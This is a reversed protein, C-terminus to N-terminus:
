KGREHVIARFRLLESLRFGTYRGLVLMLAIVILVLEPLAFLGNVLLRVRFVVCIVVVSALTGSVHKLMNVFGDEIELLWCREISMTLIVVPLLGVITGLESEVQDTLVVLGIMGVIVVTLMVSLRPVLLLKMGELLYRVVLGAVLFAILTIIGWRLPALHIGLSILVPAFTGITPVGIVNRLFCVVLAGLPILLLFKVAWQSNPSLRAMSAATAIDRWRNTEGSEVVQHAAIRRLSFDYVVQDMYRHRLLPYDGRYLMLYNPPQTRYHRNLPCFPVWQEGDWAEVWVHTDRKVGETLILGGAVRAPIGSARLLAVMLRSKGGCDSFGNTLCTIADVTGPVSSNAIRFACYRYIAEIKDETRVLNGVLERALKQIVPASSQIKDTSRLYYETMEELNKRAIPASPTKGPQTQAFFTVSMDKAGTTGAARWEIVRNREPPEISQHRTMGHEVFEEGSIQQADSKPPVLLKIYATPRRAFSTVRMTIHWRAGQVMGSLDGGLVSYRAVALGGGVCCLVGATIAVLRTPRDM